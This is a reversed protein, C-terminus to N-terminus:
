GSSGATSFEMTLPQGPYLIGQGQPGQPGLRLEQKFATVTTPQPALPPTMPLWFRAWKIAQFHICALWGAVRPHLMNAQAGM